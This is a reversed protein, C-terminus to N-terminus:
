LKFGNQQRYNYIIIAIKTGSPNGNEDTLDTVMVESNIMSLTEKSIEMGLSKYSQNDENIDNVRKKRGTGNDTIFIKLNKGSEHIQIDVRGNEIQHINGHKISNEIYPQLFLAPVITEELDISEDIDISFKFKDDYRLLELEFYLKIHEIEEELTITSARSSEIIKRLLKSFKSLYLMARQKDGQVILNLIANLSNFIFHPNMQTQLAKLQLSIIKKKTLGKLRSQWLFYGAISILIFIIASFLIVKFWLTMWYPPIISLHLSIGKKNWVGDNNSGKLRLTYEGPEIGALIITNQNGLNIWDQHIGDIKFAYQNLNPSIYDLASFQIKSYDDNWNKRITDGDKLYYSVLSDGLYMNSVVIEPINNNIKLENPSFISVGKSGGFVLDGDKTIAATNFSYEDSQFGDKESYRIIKKTKQDYKILGNMSGIWLNNQNDCVISSIGDDPLGDATTISTFNDTLPNYKSIGVGYAGFWLSGNKDECISWITNGCISSADEPYNLYVKFGDIEPIYKNLGKQTGVWINSSKDKYIKLIRSDSISNLKTDSHIYKQLSDSKYSYRFLGKLEGIWLNDNEYLLGWVNNTLINIKTYDKIQGTQKGFYLLGKNTGLIINKNNDETIVNFINKNNDISIKNYYYNIWRNNIKDYKNLGNFTGVWLNDDSDIYVSRITNHSISYKDDKVNRFTNVNKSKPKIKLLGSSYYDWIIHNKPSFIKKSEIFGRGFHVPSYSHIKLNKNFGLFGSDDFQYLGNYLNKFKTPKQNHVKVTVYINGDYYFFNKDFYIENWKNDIKYNTESFTFDSLMLKVVKFPETDNSVQILPNNNEDFGLIKVIDYDKYNYIKKYDKKKPDIFFLEDGKVITKKKSIKFNNLTKFFLQGNESTFIEISYISNKITSDIKNNGTKFLEFNDSKFNYQYTNRLLSKDVSQIFYCFTYINGICDSFLTIGSQFSLSENDYEINYNKCKGTEPDLRNIYGKESAIWIYGKKDEAIHTVTNNSISTTDNHIHRFVIFEKGDYRNLGNSTGIWIFGRSDEMGCTIISQSLGADKNILDIDYGQNSYCFTIILINCFIIFFIKM